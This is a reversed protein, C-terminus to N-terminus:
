DAGDGSTSSPLLVDAGHIPTDPAVAAELQVLPQNGPHSEVALAVMKRCQDMDGVLRFREALDLSVAAEFLRPFRLGSPKGRRKFYGELVQLHIELPWNAVKALITNVILAEASPQSLEQQILRDITESVPARSGEPVVGNFLAYLALYPLRLNKKASPLLEAVPILVPSLDTLFAGEERLACPVFQELFGELKRRGASIVDGDANAIWYQPAMELQIVGTRELVYDHKERELSPQSKVFEIIVNRMLRSLGQLTLFTVREHLATESYGHGLVVVDPLRKLQHVYKSRSQYAMALVETLDSRALSLNIELSAERFYSSPTHSMAFERFRRALATHEVKLLAERVRKALEEEAGSLAEDVALRKREDYSEWDSEHGDFDQALSEVSAVLLTYALELDDAIRHMGNIYTRIARMVCLFTNRPLGILQTTFEQLFAVEEPKCWLDADFFRRVFEKPAARTSLGKEGSTLRRALDIDPTCVCNLAFSAVVAFDNLYPEVGSSILVGPASEEGEMRELLEYILVRPHSYSTSPLLKGAGTEVVDKRGLTANTYLTGRLLNEWGVPRSFLKGTAIQLM